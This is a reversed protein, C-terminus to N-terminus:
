WGQQQAAELLYGGGPGFELLRGPSQLGALHRWEALQRKALETRRQHEKPSFARIGKQDTAVEGDMFYHSSYLTDYYRGGPQPALWMLGDTKHRVVRMEVGNLVVSGVVDDYPQGDLPCAVDHLDNVDITVDALSTDLLPPVDTSPSALAPEKLVQSLVADINFLEPPLPLGLSQILAEVQSSPLAHFVRATEEATSAGYVRADTLYALLARLTVHFSLTRDLTALVRQGFQQDDYDNDAAALLHLVARRIAAPQASFEYLDLLTIVLEEIAPPGRYGHSKVFVHRLEHQITMALLERAGPVNRAVLRIIDIDFTLTGPGERTFHALRDNGDMIVLRTGEIPCSACVLPKLDQIMRSILDAAFQEGTRQTLQGDAQLVGGAVERPVEDQAVTRRIPATEERKGAREEQLAALALDVVGAMTLGVSEPRVADKFWFGYQFTSPTQLVLHDYPGEVAVVEHVTEPAVVAMEGARLITVHPQGHVLSVLAAKGQTILYVETVRKKGDRVPHKHLAEVSHIRTFPMIGKLPSSIRNVGTIYPGFPGAYTMSDTLWETGQSPSWLDRRHGHSYILVGDREWVLGSRNEGLSREYWAPAKATTVVLVGNRKVRVQAPQPQTRGDILIAGPETLTYSDAGLTVEVESGLPIIIQTEGTFATTNTLFAAAAAGYYTRTQTEEDVVYSGDAQLPMVREGTESIVVAQPPSSAASPVANGAGGSVPRLALFLKDILDNTIHPHIARAYDRFASPTQNTIAAQRLRAFGERLLEDDQFVTPLLALLSDLSFPPARDPAQVRRTAEYLVSTLEVALLASVEPQIAPPSRVVDARVLITPKGDREAVTVWAGRGEEAMIKPMAEPPCAACVLPTLDQIMRAILDAAFREGSVHTLTGEATLTTEAVVQAVLADLDITRPTPERGVQFTVTARGQALARLVDERLDQRTWEVWDTDDSS